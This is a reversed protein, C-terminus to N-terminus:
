QGLRQLIAPVHVQDGKYNGTLAYMVLNVGFRYALTRQRQGGPLVAYPNNGESDVAWAAGWDNGGIIVPSVSDNTRDQDRQVWVTDGTFRGPFDSLLYFSRSLVHEGSLPALPPVILSRAIRRLAEETGPAFGSGSGSDRTDILIIGGRSMYDNLAAAQASTLEPADATIPWYLLPYLSLDTQGPQVADPEFLTAATRHNVYDSLGELGAKAVGDVQTDGSTIYGLRTDIAPNPSSELAQAAPMLVLMLVAATASVRPKLLGRLAMSVAMDVCLLLIALALLPPGLAKERASGRVTELTAGAIPTAAEPAAISTGLNLVQRGSEPGYLGPPHQPSAPTSGFKDARLGIAAPPPQTLLGFGDLTEAPALVASSQTNAVGVSLQVLRRLMEVFLGSLPLNSWDANATVHFLVVRGAGQPIETVLPTGDELAAWTRPALDASPEALVQRNVKVEETVPLGAFPSAPPFAALGSPKSWSLSGGLQRDGALLRVPLLTDTDNTAAEATHPGAFRILLGGKRVWAALADREAGDPLPRDALVLVSIDRKLLTTADGSRLETFPELARRLFYVSGTFPTDATALDGSLLGVPRRRWREDLLVVSGASPPGDLVLRTLRNRLEPPLAISGSAVSAGAPVTIDARALTRGDGSQALVSAATAEARPALALHVDLRDAESTPPLLLPSSAVDCCIETLPGVDRMAEAFRDFGSGDTLGDPVYIVSAGDRDKWARIAETSAPRDSPWAQPQLAALRARMDGIPMTATVAVPKGGGDPATALMAAKRGAREARDLLVGAAEKRRAWDDGSAWGNDMVLLVPGKGALVAGADLVPRALAVIVLAAAAMRLALLWWPTRAPTEETANLGLLFRIAPFVESRPAPPTVRILWWLVPLALLGLLIWPAVFIM